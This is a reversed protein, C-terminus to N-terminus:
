LILVPTSSKPGSQTCRTHTHTGKKHPTNLLLIYFFNIDFNLAM